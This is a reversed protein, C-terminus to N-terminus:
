EDNRKRRKLGVLGLVSTLLGLIGLGVTSHSQENTQPLKQQNVTSSNSQGEAVSGNQTAAVSTTLTEATGANTNSGLSSQSGNVNNATTRPVIAGLSTTKTVGKNPTTAKNVATGPNTTKKVGKPATPKNVATGPNTTKKTGKGPTTTNTVVKGPTSTEDGTTLGTTPGTPNGGPQNGSGDDGKKPGTLQPTYTVVVDENYMPVDQAVVSGFFQQDVKSPNATYGPLNPVTQEYYAGQPTAVSQDTVEDTVVKWTVTQVTPAPVQGTFSPDDVVYHITRTSTTTTYDLKHNLHIQIPSNNGAKFTYTGSTPQGSALIYHAPINSANWGVIGDTAGSITTLQGVVAGGNDDDVYELTTNQKNPTYTIFIDAPNTPMTTTPANTIAPTDPSTPTYGEVVPTVYDSYNESPTYTTVGTVLDTDTTWKVPQQIVTQKGDVGVVTITRTTTSNFGQPVDATHKHALKITLNDSTDTSFKYPVIVNQGPALVYNTPVKTNYTGTEGVTGDLIEPTGVTANNNDTDVYTVKLSANDALEYQVYDGDYYYQATKGFEAKGNNTGDVITPTVKGSDDTVLSYGTPILAQDTLSFGSLQTPYNNTFTDVDDNLTKSLDNLDVYQDDGDADVYHYRTKVTSAGTIKISTKSDVSAENNDGYFITQLYGTKGAQQKFDGATTGSIKIRGTSTNTKIGDIQVIISRISSWDTVQNNNVYGTTDPATATDTVPQLQTSYLIVPNIATGDGNTTTYNAPVDVGTSDNLKFTYQSGNVGETPLNIAVSAKHDKGDDLLTNVISDYFNLTGDGNVDSTGNKVADIDRNGQAVSSNNFSKATEITWDGTGSEGEGNMLYANPNNEVFSSDKPKTANLLKTKPSAIYVYYPYKGPLADSNNAFTVAGWYGTTQSMDVTTGTGSYDIKVVTQGNDAIFKSVKAGTAKTLLGGTSDTTAPNATPDTYWYLSNISAVTTAKPIVFYFTPEYIKNTTQGEGDNYRTELTGASSNGPASSRTILTIQGLAVDDVITQTTPVSVMQTQGDNTDFAIAIASTLKDGNKVATGNDYTTSLQGAANFSNAKGLDNTYSGPALKNPTFVATRIASNGTVKATDGANVTGTETTGDALTLTYGWSSTDPMYSSPSIGQVPTTISTVDLGSPVNITVKANNAEAASNFTFGFSNLYQPSDSADQNLELKDSAISSNGKSTVTAKSGQTADANASLITVNWPDASDTLPASDSNIVQSFTVNGNATLTQDTTTQAVNFAGVIKYEPANDLAQNGSKEPVSIIVNTGKGGPQTITSGDGFGNIQNTSNSDLVFGTPVPINIESGGYNDASNVRATASSDDQVGDAENVSVGFVYNQNPLIKSVTQSDPYLLSVTSLKTTPQIRQTFTIPAQAVGNVSYTITKDVTKGVDAMGAPQYTANNSLNFRIEQTTTSNTTFTDTVTRSGDTNKDTVTTGMSSALPVVRDFTYVSTDAPINIKYVDGANANVQLTLTLPSQANTGYGVANASITLPAATDSDDAVADIEQPQHTTAYVQAASAKAADM